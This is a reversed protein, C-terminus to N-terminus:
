YFERVKGQSGHFKRIKGLIRQSIKLNGSKGQSLLFRAPFFPSADSDDRLFSDELFVKQKSNETLLWKIDNVNCDYVQKKCIENEVCM